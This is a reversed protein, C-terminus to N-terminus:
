FVKENLMWGTISARERNTPLVEHEKESLFLALTGEEPLISALTKDGEYICLEGGDASQWQENLYLLFSVIRSSGTKHRDTHRKYFTGAPYATLHMEYDRIGLYFNRNLLQVIEDVKGIYSSLAGTAEEPNIWSIFDGRTDEQIQFSENKGVGAKKMAGSAQRAHLEARLDNVEASTMFERIVVFGDQEFKDLDFLTELDMRCLFSRAAETKINSSFELILV